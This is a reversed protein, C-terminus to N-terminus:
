AWRERNSFNIYAIIKQLVLRVYVPALPLRVRLGGFWVVVAERFTLGYGMRKLCCKWFGFVVIASRRHPKIMLLSFYLAHHFNTENAGMHILNEFVELPLTALSPYQGSSM